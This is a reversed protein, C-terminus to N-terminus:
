TGFYVREVEPLEIVERPEGEAIIKGLNMVSLTHSLDAVFRVNHEIILMTVGLRANIDLLLEGLRKHEDAELGSVPEDFMLLRPRSVIARAIELRRQNGLSLASAREFALKELGVAALAQLAKERRERSAPGSIFDDFSKWLSGIVGNEGLGLVVNDLCSLPGYIAVHQFTRTVGHAIRERASKDDMSVDFVRITGEDPTLFGSIMNFLTTKGAGNPGILGHITGASITLHVNDVAVLAGFSKFVQTVALAPGGQDMGESPATPEFKPTAAHDVQGGTPTAFAHGPVSAKSDRERLPRSQTRRVLRGLREIIEVIGGPFFVIVALVLGAYVLEQYEAVARLTEPLSRLIGGGLIGGWVSTMGGVIPYALLLVSRIVGYGEPDLIRVQPAQVAGAFAIMASSIVFAMIRFGAIDIGFAEAGIETASIARLTKGFNGRVLVAAITVM